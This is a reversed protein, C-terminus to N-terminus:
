AANYSISVVILTVIPIFDFLFMGTLYNFAVRYRNRVLAGKDYYAVHFEVFVDILYM